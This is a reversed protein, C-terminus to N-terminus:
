KLHFVLTVEGALSLRDGKRLVKPRGSELCEENVWTGNTSSDKVFYRRGERVIECHYRSVKGKADAVVLDNGESLAGIKIAPKDLQFTEGTRQGDAFELLGQRKRLLLYLCLAIGGVFLVVVSVIKMWWQVRETQIRAQIKQKWNNLEANTPDVKSGDELGRLAPVLQTSDDSFYANRANEIAERVQQGIKSRNLKDQVQQRAGSLDKDDQHTKLAQDLDELAKQLATQNDEALATKANQLLTQRTEDWQAQDAIDKLQKQAKDMESKATPDTPDLNLIQDYCAIKEKPDSNKYAKLHLNTITAKKLADSMDAGDGPPIPGCVEQSFVSSCTLLATLIVFSFKV